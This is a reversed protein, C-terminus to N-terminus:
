YVIWGINFIKYSNVYQIWRHEWTFWFQQFSYMNLKNPQWICKKNLTLSHGNPHQLHLSGFLLESGLTPYRKANRFQHPLSPLSRSLLQDKTWKALSSFSSVSTLVWHYPLLVFISVLSPLCAFLLLKERLYRQLLWQHYTNSAKTPDTKPDEGKTLWKRFCKIAYNSIARFQSWTWHLQCGPNVM